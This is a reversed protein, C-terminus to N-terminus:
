KVVKLEVSADTRISINQYFVTRRRPPGQKEYSLDKLRDGFRRLKVAVIGRADCWACYDQYLATAGTEYGPRTLLREKAYEAVSADTAEPRSDSNRCEVTAVTPLPTQPPKSPRTNRPKSSQFDGQQAVTEVTPKSLGLGARAIIADFVEGTVADGIKDIKKAMGKLVDEEELVRIKREMKTIKWEADEARERAKRADERLAEQERARQRRWIAITAALGVVIIGVAIGALAANSLFIGGQQKLLDTPLTISNFDLGFEKPM